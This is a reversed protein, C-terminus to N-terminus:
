SFVLSLYHPIGEVARGGFRCVSLVEVASPREGPLQSLLSQVYDLPTHAQAATVDVSVIGAHQTLLWKLISQQYKACWVRWKRKWRQFTRTSFDGGADTPRGLAVDQQLAHDARQWKYVTPLILSFVKRCAVCRFRQVWLVPQWGCGHRYVSKRPFRSHRHFRLREPCGAKGCRTPREEAM